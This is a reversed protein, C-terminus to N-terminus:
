KERGRVEGGLKQYGTKNQKYAISFLRRESWGPSRLGKREREKVVGKEEAGKALEKLAGRELRNEEKDMPERLAGRMLVKARENEAAAAFLFVIGGAKESKSWGSM